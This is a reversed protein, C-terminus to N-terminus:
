LNSLLLITLNKNKLDQLLLTLPHSLWNLANLKLVFRVWWFVEMVVFFWLDKFLNLVLVVEFLQYDDFFNVWLRFILFVQYLSVSTSFVWFLANILVDLYFSHKALPVDCFCALELFCFFYVEFVIFYLLLVLFCSCVGFLSIFVFVCSSRSLHLKLKRLIGGFQEDNLLFNLNLTFFPTCNSVQLVPM